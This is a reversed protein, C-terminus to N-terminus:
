PVSVGKPQGLIESWVVAQQLPTLGQLSFGSGLSLASVPTVRVPAADINSKVEPAPQEYTRTVKPKAVPHAPKPKTKLAAKPRPVPKPPIYVQTDETLAKGYDPNSQAEQIKRVLEGLGGSNKQQKKAEDSRAKIVRFAIFLAIPILYQINEIIGEM